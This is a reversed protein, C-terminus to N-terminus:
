RNPRGAFGDVLGELIELLSAEDLNLPSAYVYNVLLAQAPLDAGLRATCRMVVGPPVSWRSQENSGGSKILRSQDSGAIRRARGRACERSQYGPASYRRRVEFPSPVSLTDGMDPDTEVDWDATGWLRRDGLPARLATLM